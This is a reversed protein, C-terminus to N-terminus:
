RRRPAKDGELLRPNIRDEFVYLHLPTVNATTGYYLGNVPNFTVFFPSFGPTQWDSGQPRYAEAALVENNHGIKVITADGTGNEFSAGTIMFGESIPEMANVTGVGSTFPLSSSLVTGASTIRLMASTALAAPIWFVGNEGAYIGGALFATSTSATTQQVGSTDYSKIHVNSSGDMTATWIKGDGNVAVGFVPTHTATVAYETVTGATTIKGIKAALPLTFWLNGDPGATVDSPNSSVSYQTFVGAPTIKIIENDAYSAAWFNGDAGLTLRGSIGGSTPTYTYTAEVANSTINFKKVTDVDSIFYISGDTYVSPKGLGTATTSIETLNVHRFM